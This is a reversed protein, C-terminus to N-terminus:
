FILPAKLLISTGSRYVKVSNITGKMLEQLQSTSSLNVDNIALLIDGSKIQMFNAPSGDQVAIVMFGTAEPLGLTKAEEAELPRLMVGFNKNPGSSDIKPYVKLLITKEPSGNPGSPLIVEMTNQDALVFMINEKSRSAMFWIGPFAKPNATKKFMVKLEGIKYGASAASTNTVVGIYDYDPFSSSSNKIVAIEYNSDSTLWIGECAELSKGTFYTDIFQSRSYEGLPRIPEVTPNGTAKAYCTTSILVSLIMTVIFVKSYRM